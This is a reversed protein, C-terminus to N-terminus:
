FAVHFYFHMGVEVNHSQEKYHFTGLLLQSMKAALAFKTSAYDRCRVLGLACKRFGILEVVDFYIDM